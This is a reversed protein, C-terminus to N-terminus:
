NSNQISEFCTYHETWMHEEELTFTECFMYSERGILVVILLQMSDDYNEYEVMLNIGILKNELKKVKDDGIIYMLPADINNAADVIDKFVMFSVGRQRNNSIYALYATMAIRKSWTPEIKHILDISDM